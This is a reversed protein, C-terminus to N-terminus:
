SRGGPTLRAVAAASARHYDTVARGLIEVLGPVDSAHARACVSGIGRSIGDLIEAVVEGDEEVLAEAAMQVVFNMVEAPTPQANIAALEARVDALLKAGLKETHVVNLRARSKPGPDDMSASAFHHPTPPSLGPRSPKRGWCPVGRFSTTSFATSCTDPMTSASGSCPGDAPSASATRASGFLAAPTSPGVATTRSARRGSAGSSSSSPSAPASATTASGRAWDPHMPRAGKGSEGGVIIWDLGRTRYGDPHNHPADPGEGCRICLDSRPRPKLDIPGLLPEISVYRVAAATSLLQPVREDLRVQDEASVGAWVNALPWSAVREGALQLRQDSIWKHWHTPHQTAGQFLVAAMAQMVAEPRNPDNLYERMRRARKTLIQFTHRPALAIVAFIRDLWADPVAEHFLDGHAGVFVRKPKAWGLPETLWDANFRVAGTWVPGAKSPEALGIRSPHNRLRRGALTMAYCNACGPSLVSCGTIPNWTADTWEILSHEAM